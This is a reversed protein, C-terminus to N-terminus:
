LRVFNKNKVFLRKQFEFPIVTTKRVVEIFSGINNQFHWLNNHVYKINVLGDFGREVRIIECYESKQSCWVAFFKDNNDEIIYKEFKNDCFGKRALYTNGFYSPKMAKEPNRKYVEIILSDFFNDFSHNNRVSQYVIKDANESIKELRKEASLRFDPLIIDDAFCVGSFSFFMFFLFLSIFFGPDKKM